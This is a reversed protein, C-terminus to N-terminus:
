NFKKIGAKNVITKLKSIETICKGALIDEETVTAMLIEKAGDGNRERDYVIYITGDADQTANPYSVANREDIMLHGEWSKGDDKSIMAALRNRGTNQYHNVLLLNGSALRSIHFRSSPGGLNTPEGPTWTKGGDYSYSEGIGYHTRVLMWLSGDKKEIVKHEDYHRNPVDAGGKLKFTKGNDTSSYVNSFKENEYSIDLVVDPKEEKWIACPLLWEGTSLFTPKNMMIGNAIREPKTWKPLKDDPNATKIAWVGCRGDYLGSSQVWTIWLNNEPDKWICPDFTRVSDPHEIVMQIDSWTKGKDNSRVVLVYNENSERTGGSYFVTWLTGNETIEISPIGQWRRNEDKYKPNEPNFIIEPPALSADIGSGPSKITESIKRTSNCGAFIFIILAIILNLQNKM